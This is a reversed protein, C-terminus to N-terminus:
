QSLLYRIHNWRWRPTAADWFNAGNLSHYTWSWGQRDFYNATHYLWTDGGNAPRQGTLSDRTEWGCAPCASASYEGIFMRWYGVRDAFRRVGVLRKELGARTWPTRNSERAADPWRQGAPLSKISGDGTRFSIGQHTYDGPWYFHTSYYIRGALNTNGRTGLDRSDYYTPLQPKFLGPVRDSDHYHQNYFDLIVSRNPDINRIERVLDRYLANLSVGPAVNYPENILDFGHIIAPSGKTQQALRRWMRFM